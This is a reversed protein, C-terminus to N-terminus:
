GDDEQQLRGDVRVEISGDGTVSVDTDAYQFSVAVSSSQGDFLADLADAEITEQLPPLDTTERNTAAAVAEVIAVSPLGSKRWDHRVTTSNPDTSEPHDTPDSDGGEDRNDHM